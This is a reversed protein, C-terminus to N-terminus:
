RRVLFFGRAQDRGRGFSMAVGPTYKHPFSSANFSGSRRPRICMGCFLAEAASGPHNMSAEGRSGAAEKKERHM